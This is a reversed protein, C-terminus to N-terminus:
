AAVPDAIVGVIENMTQGTEAIWFACLEHLLTAREDQATATEPRISIISSTSPKSATFGSKAPVAVWNIEAAAGFAQTTFADLKGRLVAESEASIQGDQVICTCPIM